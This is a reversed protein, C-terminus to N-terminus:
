IPQEETPSYRMEIPLGHIRIFTFLLLKWDRRYNRPLPWSDFTPVKRRKQFVMESNTTVIFRCSSHKTALIKKLLRKKKRLFGESKIAHAADLTPRIIFRLHCIELKEMRRGAAAIWKLIRAVDLPGCITWKFRRLSKLEELTELIRKFKLQTEFLGGNGISLEELNPFKQVTTRLTEEDRMSIEAKLTKLNAHVQMVHNPPRNRRRSGGWICEKDELLSTWQNECRECGSIELTKLNPGADVLDSLSIENCSWSSMQITSLKPMAPFDHPALNVPLRDYLFWPCGGCTQPLINEHIEVRRLDLTRLNGAFQELVGPILLNWEANLELVNWHLSKLADGFQLIPLSPNQRNRSRAAFERVVNGWELYLSDDDNHYFASCHGASDQWKFTELKLTIEPRQSLFHIIRFGENEDVEEEDDYGEEDDSYCYEDSDVDSDECDCDEKSDGFSSVESVFLHKLNPCSLLVNISFFSTMQDARKGVRLSRINPLVPYPTFAHDDKATWIKEFEVEDREDLYQQFDKLEQIVRETKRENGGDRFQLSLEAVNPCWVCLLNRIWKLCGEDLTLGTLALSKPVAGWKPLFAKWTIEQQSPEAEPEPFVSEDYPFWSVYDLIWSTYLEVRNRGSPEVNNYFKQVNLDCRKMLARRAAEEWSKCVQRCNKLSKEDLYDMVIDLVLSGFSILECPPRSVNVNSTSSMRALKGVSSDKEEDINTIALRKSSSPLTESPSSSSSPVSAAKEVLKAKKDEEQEHRDMRIGRVSKDALENLFYL